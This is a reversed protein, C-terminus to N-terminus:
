DKHGPSARMQASFQSLKGTLSKVLDARKLFLLAFSTDIPPSRGLGDNALWSGDEGQTSLLMAVGWAYWPKGNITKLQYLVAVREVSWLFYLDRLIGDGQGAKGPEGIAQSLEKLAKQIAPDRDPGPGAKTGEKALAHSVALGLLGVCTMSPLPSVNGRGQYNWSGEDNQSNRFRDVVRALCREVPANHRQAALLALIAFQTNSNDGSGRYFDEGEPKVEQLVPLVKLTAPLADAGGPLADLVEQVRRNGLAKLIAHLQDHEEWTLRPCEYTWGGASSQGAVLRLTLQQIRERDRAEGLKDLLLVALSLQYTNKVEPCVDRIYNTAKRLVPDSAREGCEALALAVLATVGVKPDAAWSGDAQQTKKLYDVGRRIAEDIKAQEPPSLVILPPSAPDPKQAEGGAVTNEVPATQGPTEPGTDGNEGSIFFRLLLVLLGLTFAGGGLVLLWTRLKRPSSPVLNSQAV